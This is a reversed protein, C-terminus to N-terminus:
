RSKLLELHQKAKTGRPDGPPCLELYRGIEAIAGERDGSKEMSQSLLLHTNADDPALKVAEKYANVAPVVYGTVMLVSGLTTHATASGPALKVAEKAQATAQAFDGKKMLGYTLRERLESRRPYLDVAEELYRIADDIKGTALTCSALAKLVSIDKPNLRYALHLEQVSEDKKDIEDLVRAYNFHYLSDDPRAAIARKYMQAASNWDDVMTLAAGYDALADAYHPDAAIALKYQELAEWLKGDAVLNSAKLYSGEASLYSKVSDPLNAVREVPPAGLVLDTGTWNSKMAPIQVKMRGEAGTEEETKRRAIDFAKNLSILGEEKRLAAVLNKSFAGSWTMQNPQSSSLIIYGNGLMLKEIDLNYSKSLSKSGADLEAAGSYAAQLVLLIRDCHVNKKLTSMLTQMSVCTGYINDLACDYSCLYTSGDTTPFGSTAVFVVVLDDPGAGNGLFNSGLASMISQRTAHSDLLLKVHNRDFRGGNPDILYDYFDRASQAMDGAEVPQLRSEKFKSTGIVVAWKQKIPRNTSREEPNLDQIKTFEVGKVKPLAPAAQAGAPTASLLVVTSPALILASLLAPVFRRTRQNRIEM